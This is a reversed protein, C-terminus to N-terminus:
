VRKNVAFIFGFQKDFHSPFTQVGFGHERLTTELSQHNHSKSDHYELIFAKIRTYVEDTLSDIIDYEGGEIDMKLLGVSAFHAADLCDSVSIAIVPITEAATFLHEHPALFHNISDPRLVLKKTGSESALAKQWAVTSALKNIALHQSLIKFNEPEPELALVPVTDNWSRVYLTFLGSHAGVDIIPLALAAVYKEIIKYERFKFIENAVSEDSEDRIQVQWVHANLQLTRNQM